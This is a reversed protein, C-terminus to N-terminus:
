EQELSMTVPKGCWAGVAALGFGDLRWQEAAVGLSRDRASADDSISHLWRKGLWARLASKEGRLRLFLVTGAPALRRAPKPRRRAYDWGSQVQPRGNAVAVLEPRVGDREQCLWTPYHGREWWAPTLLILRCAGAAVIADALREPMQPLEVRRPDVSWRALRREGGIPAVQERLTRKRLNVDLGLALQPRELRASGPAARRLQFSLGRTQFLMSEEATQTAPDIGVSVRQEGEPGNHGLEALQAITTDRTDPDDAQDLAGSRLLWAEFRPWRWFRPAGSLPKAPSFRRPGVLRLAPLGPADLDSAFGEPAELPLLQKCRAAATASELLLADAPAPAMWTPAGGGLEVLLPGRLRMKLLEGLRGDNFQGREDTGLMSRVAGATTSPLPFPHSTARAGPTPNFPRGDRFILPDHPEILLLTM